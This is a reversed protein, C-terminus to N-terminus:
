AVKVSLGRSGGQQEAPIELKERASAGKEPEM